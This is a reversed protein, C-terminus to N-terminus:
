LLVSHHDQGIDVMKEGISLLVSLYREGGHAMVMYLYLFTIAAGKAQTNQDINSPLGRQQIADVLRQDLADPHPDGVGVSTVADWPLDDIVWEHSFNGLDLLRLAIKSDHRPSFLGYCRLGVSAAIATQLVMLIESTFAFVLQLECCWTCRRARRVLYGKRTCQCVM